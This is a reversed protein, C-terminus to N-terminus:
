INRKNSIEIEFFGFVFRNMYPNLTDVNIIREKDIMTPGKLSSRNDNNPKKREDLTPLAKSGQRIM